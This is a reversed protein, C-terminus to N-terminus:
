VIDSYYTELCLREIKLNLILHFRTFQQFNKVEELIIQAM